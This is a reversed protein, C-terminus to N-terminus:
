IRPVTYVLVSCTSPRFVYLQQRSVDLAMTHAGPGTEVTEVLALDRTDVVQVAGPNGIALYVPNSVPNFWIADPSGALDVSGIQNGSSPDLVLMVSDECAVFLRRADRDLDMVMPVFRPM